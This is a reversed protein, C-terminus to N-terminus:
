KVEGSSNVIGGHKNIVSEVVAIPVWGYVTETPNDKDEAYQLLIDEKQNPYGVEVSYYEGSILDLRPECYCAGSAQVSMSFGDNCIIRPRRLLKNTRPNIHTTDKLFKRIQMDSDDFLGGHKLIVLEVIAVPVPQPDMDRFIGNHNMFPLFWPENESLESIEVQDYNGDILNEKPKCEHEKSAQVSMSFGDNCKLRPRTLMCGDSDLRYTNRLFSEIQM